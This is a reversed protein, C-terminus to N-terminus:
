VQTIKLHTQIRKDIESYVEETEREAEGKRELERIIQRERESAVAVFKNHLNELYKPSTM